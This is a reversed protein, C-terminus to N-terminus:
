EVSVTKDIAANNMLVDLRGYNSVIDKIAKQIQREDCVDLGLAQAGSGDASLEKALARAKDERIDAVIVTAGEENLVRCTAEGLGGAGGTVLSVQGELSAINM